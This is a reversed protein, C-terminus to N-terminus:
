EDRELILRFVHVMPVLEPLGAHVDIRLFGDDTVSLTHDPAHGAQLMKPRVEYGDWDNVIAAVVKM